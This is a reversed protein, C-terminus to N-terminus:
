RRTQHPAAPQCPGSPQALCRRCELWRVPGSARLRHPPSGPRGTAWAPPPSRGCPDIIASGIVAMFLGGVAILLAVMPREQRSGSMVQTRLSTRAADIEVPRDSASGPSGHGAVCKSATPPTPPKIHHYSSWAPAPPLDLLALRKPKDARDVLHQPPLLLLCRRAAPPRRSRVLEPHSDSM